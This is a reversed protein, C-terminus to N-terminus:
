YDNKIEKELVRKESTRRESAKKERAKKTTGFGVIFKIKNKDNFKVSLVYGHNKKDKLVVRIREIENRHLLLKRKQVEDQSANFLINWVFLEGNSERVFADRIEFQNNRIAKVDSGKLVVGAEYTKDINYKFGAFKNNRVTLEGM